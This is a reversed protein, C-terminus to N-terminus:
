GIDRILTIRPFLRGCGVRLPRQDAAISDVSQPALATATDVAVALKVVDICNLAEAASTLVDAAAKVVSIRTAADAAPEAVAVADSVVWARLVTNKVVVPAPDYVIGLSKPDSTESDAM